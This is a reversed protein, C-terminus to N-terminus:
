TKELMLKQLYFPVNEVIKQSPIKDISIARLQLLPEATAYKGDFKLIEDLAGFLNIHHLIFAKMSDGFVFFPEGDANWTSGSQSGRSLHYLTLLRDHHHGIFQAAFERRDGTAFNDCASIFVDVSTDFNRRFESDFILEGDRARPYIAAHLKRHSTVTVALDKLHSDCFKEFEEIHKYYNSFNNQDSSLGIQRDTRAIQTRTLKMQQKTQESRHSAALLAFFPLSLTFAGVPVRFLSAANSLGISNIQLNTDATIAIIVILFVCVILVTALAVRVILLEHFGKDPDFFVSNKRNDVDSSNQRM